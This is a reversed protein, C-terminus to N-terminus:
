PLTTPALLETGKMLRAADILDLGNLQNLRLTTTGQMAAFERYTMERDIQVPQIRKKPGPKPTPEAQISQRHDTLIREGRTRSPESSRGGVLNIVQGPRLATPKVAPNAAMLDSVSVGHNRAIASFTDGKKVTYKTSAAPSAAPASAPAPPNEAKEPIHIKQGPRIITKSDMENATLLADLSCGNRRAIGALTDGAAVQYSAENTAAARSPSTSTIGLRSELERIREEQLRCRERLAELEPTAHASLATAAFLALWRVPPTVKM